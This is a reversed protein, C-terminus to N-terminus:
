VFRKKYRCFLFFIGGAISLALLAIFPLSDLTIGTDPIAEKNNTFVIEHASVDNKAQINSINAVREPASNGNDIVYSTTYRSGSYDEETISVDAGVPIETLTSEEDNALDVTASGTKSTNDVKFTVNEDEKKISITFHFKKQKDGMSGTVLKKLKISTTTPSYHAYFNVTGDALEADSPTYNWRNDAIKTSGYAGGEANEPYWGDLVYTVGNVTKTSGITAKTTRAVPNGTLYNKADIQRYESSEGPEKVWFKATFVKTSKISLACDIHYPHTGGNDRSIKRPTLTIEKIDSQQLQDAGIGLDAAV